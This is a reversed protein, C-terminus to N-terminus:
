KRLALLAVLGIGGLLMLSSSSVGGSGGGLFGGGGDAAVAAIQQNLQGALQTIQQVKAAAQQKFTALAAADKGKKAQYVMNSDSLSAAIRSAESAAQSPPLLGANMMQVIQDLSALVQAGFANIGSLGCAQGPKCASFLGTILPLGATAAGIVAGVWGMTEDSGTEFIRDRHGKLVMKPVGSNDVVAFYQM